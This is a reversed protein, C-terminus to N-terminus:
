PLEVQDKFGDGAGLRPLCIHFPIIYEGDSKVRDRRVERPMSEVLVVHWDALQRNTVSLIRPYGLIVAGHAVTERDTVHLRKIPRGVRDEWFHKDFELERSM